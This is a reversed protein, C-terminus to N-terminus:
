IKPVDASLLLPRKRPGALISSYWWGGRGNARPKIEFRQESRHALMFQFRHNIPNARERLVTISVLRKGAPTKDTLNHNIHCM